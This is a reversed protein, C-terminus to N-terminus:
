ETKVSIIYGYVMKSLWAMHERSKEQGSKDMICLIYPRRPVYIIGCDSYTKDASNLLEFVGIKHAVKIDSPVGAPLRDKFITKTLIDLIENSGSEYLYSSLYLSRFISSFNKPSVLPYVEGGANEKGIPIDLGDYVESIQKYSLQNYLVNYATNDSESLMLRVLESVTLRAGAGRKWLTGFGQDLHKKEITLVDSPSMKGREIKKYIAMALPVKSLSALKVEERDNVGISIGSPLYEFYVAVNGNQQGVYERMATRLPIFNILIDNQNNVFIRKSLYPYSSSEDSSRNNNIVLLFLVLGLLVINFTVLLYILKKNKVWASM